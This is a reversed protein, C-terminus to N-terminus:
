VTRLVDDMAARLAHRELAAAMGAGILGIKM